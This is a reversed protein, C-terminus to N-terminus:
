PIIDQLPFAALLHFLIFWTINSLSLISFSLERKLVNTAASHNQLLNLPTMESCQCKFQSRFSFLLQGHMSLPSANQIPCVALTHVWPPHPSVAIPSCFSAVTIWPSCQPPLHASGCCHVPTLGFPMQRRCSPTQSKSLTRGHSPKRCPLAILELSTLLPPGQCLTSAQAKFM